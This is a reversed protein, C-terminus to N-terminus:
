RTSEPPKAQLEIGVIDGTTSNQIEGKKLVEITHDNAAPTMGGEAKIGAIDGLKSGQIKAGEAVSIRSQPKAQSEKVEFRFDKWRAMFGRGFWLALSVVLAIFAFLAIWVLPDSPM